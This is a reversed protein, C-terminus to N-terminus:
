KREKEKKKGEKKTIKKKKKNAIFFPKLDYFPAKLPLSVM